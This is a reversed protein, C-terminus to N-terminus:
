VSLLSRVRDSERQAQERDAHYVVRGRDLVYIVDAVGLSFRLDQAALLMTQGKAKLSRIMDELTRVVIPSLGETPEDILLLRPNGVLTRAITLMQQQGGSLLGGRRHRFEHLAPFVEYVARRTWPSGGREAVELNEEVTLDAFVRRDEPVYGIGARAVRHPAWGTIETGEFRVSGSGVRALGMISKLTTSKGVGNRGILCVMQGPAVQVDVDFLVHAPGYFANISRCELM